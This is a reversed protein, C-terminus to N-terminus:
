RAWGITVLGGGPLPTASITTAEPDRHWLAGALLLGAGVGWCAITTVRAIKYTAEAASPLGNNYAASDRLRLYSLGMVGYSVAGLVVAAGGAVFLRARTSRAAPKAALFDIVIHQPTASDITIVRRQDDYGPARGVIVHTGRQLHITRPAFVEDPEFSSATLTASAGAPRVEITVATLTEARLRERILGEAEAVWEPLTEGPTPIRCKALYIEAQPWAERRTYALAILCAHLTRHELKDAAKFAKIAEGWRGDRGLKEGRAQLEDRSEARAVTALGVLMVVVIARRM